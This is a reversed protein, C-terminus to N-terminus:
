QLLFLFPAALTSPLTCFGWISVHPGASKNLPTGQRRGYAASISKLGRETVGFSTVFHSVEIYSPSLLSFYKKVTEVNRM